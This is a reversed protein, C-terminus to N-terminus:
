LISSYNDKRQVFVLPMTHSGNECLKTDYHTCYYKNYLITYVILAITSTDDLARLDVSM